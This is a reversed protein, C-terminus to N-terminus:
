SRPSLSNFIKEFEPYPQAGTVKRGNVIFTPTSEIGFERQGVLRSGVVENSLEESRMCAQFQDESIGGLRAIRALAGMIDSSRAWNDQSGFLVDIFGFYRDHGACEALVAARLAAEDLPFDRFVLKAKGTDIWEQKIRPLTERHFSACHPCTLSAYEIITIPAEMRGLVHENAGVAPNAPSSAPTAPAGAQPSPTTSGARGVPLYHFAATALVVVAIVAAALWIKRM